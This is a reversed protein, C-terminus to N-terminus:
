SKVMASMKSMYAAPLVVCATSQLWHQRGVTSCPTKFLTRYTCVQMRFSGLPSLPVSKSLQMRGFGQRTSPPPDLPVGDKNPDKDPTLGLMGVAGGASCVLENVDQNRVDPNISVDFQEYNRTNGASMSYLSGPSPIATKTLWRFAQYCCFPRVTQCINHQVTVIHCCRCWGHAPHVLCLLKPHDALVSSVWCSLRSCPGQLPTALHQLLLGAQTSARCLTSACCLLLAPWWQPLWPPGETQEWLATTSRPTVASVM